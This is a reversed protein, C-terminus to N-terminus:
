LPGLEIATQIYPNITRCAAIGEAPNIFSLSSIGPLTDGGFIGDHVVEWQASCNM